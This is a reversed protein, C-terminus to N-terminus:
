GRGRRLDFFFVSQVPRDTETLRTVRSAEDSPLDAKLIADHRLQVEGGRRRQRLMAQHLRSPMHARGECLLAQHLGGPM